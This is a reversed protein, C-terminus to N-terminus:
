KSMLQQLRDALTPELLKLIDYQKLMADKDGMKLYTSGLGFHTLADDPRFKVAQKFAEIAEAYRGLNSYSAGLNYYAEAYDPKIKVAQKYAEIEEQLQGLKSYALGLNNYADVYNPKTWIARRLHEIAEDIKNQDLLLVALNNHVEILNPNIELAKQYAKIAQANQQLNACALGLRSYVETNSPDIKLASNYAEIAQRQNGASSYALGLNYYAKADEPKLKLSHNFAETAETYRGLKSYVIGLNCYAKPNDPKLKLSQNLAGIADNYRSLEGYAAGLNSYAEAYNPDISIAKKYHEIATGFEKQEVFVYGLNNYCIYNYNTVAVAHRFLSMSNRWYRLQFITCISLIVLVITAAGSLFIKRYRWSSFIDATAWTVIIFLGILPTYTYHDAMQQMGVQVLGIVPVLTGIFWLWGVLLFKRNPSFRIVLISIVLLIIAAAITLWVAPLNGALPYLVALKRPLFMKEIYKIYSVVANAIRWRFPFTEIDTMAHQQVISTVISSIAALIFFPIKECVRRYIQGRNNIELRNLPWYDLLLLVFPLTVLMPKSMLGLAFLILTLLYSRANPNRTYHLYAAITLFWFLTSLVDKREAVWAVSEVHLPHLAFLAAVFSGDYGDAGRFAAPYKSYAAISENFSPGGSEYRVAQFGAYAVAVDASALECCVRQYLGM